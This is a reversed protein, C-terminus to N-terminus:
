SVRWPHRVQRYYVDDKVDLIKLVSPRLSYSSLDGGAAGVRRRGNARQSEGAAFRGLVRRFPDRAIRNRDTELGFPSRM